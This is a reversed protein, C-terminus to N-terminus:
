KDEPKEYWRPTRLHAALLNTEMDRRYRLHNIAASATGEYTLAEGPTPVHRGHAVKNRLDALERILDAADDSLFGCNVLARVLASTSRNPNKRSRPLSDTIHAFEEVEEYLAAWTRMILGSPDSSDGLAGVPNTSGHKDVHSGSGEAPAHASTDETPAQDDTPVEAGPGELDAPAAIPLDAPLTGATAEAEALEDGFDAKVGPAELHRLKGLAGAIQSRFVIGLVLVVAPWAM